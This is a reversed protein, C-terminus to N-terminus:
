LFLIVDSNFITLVSPSVTDGFATGVFFAPIFWSRSLVGESEM